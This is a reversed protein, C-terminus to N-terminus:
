PTWSAQVGKTRWLASSALLVAGAAALISFLLRATSRFDGVLAGQIPTGAAVPAPATPAPPVAVGSGAGDPAPTVGTANGFANGLPISGRPSQGDSADSLPAPSVTGDAPPGDASPGGALPGASPPTASPAADLVPETVPLGAGPGDAVVLYSSSSGIQYVLTGQVNSTGPVPHTVTVELMESAAGSEVTQNAITRVTIGARALAQNLAENSQSIPAPVAGGGARIGDPGITVSQGGVRAGEIVLEAKTEPKAAGDTYTSVSRSTVSAIKLTGDGFSLGENVTVASVKAGNAELVGSTDATSRAVPKEVGGFAVDASAVAKGAEARASLVYTGSPDKVEASPAVPHDARVYFPYNPIPVGSAFTLLGPATVANEGPYPLSAFGIAKGTTDVSSQAVPGGGDVFQSVVFMDPVTYTVRVGQASAGAVLSPPSVPRGSQPSPGETQAGVEAVGAFGVGAVVLLLGGLVRSWVM